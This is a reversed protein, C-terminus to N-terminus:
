GGLLTRLKGAERAAEIQKPTMTKLQARTLQEGGPQGGGAVDVTASAKAAPAAKLRPNGDLAKEVAATLDDDFTDAAPDLRAVTTAFGRSDLLLDVDAGAKRGVKEAAREIKLTRLEADKADREAAAKEAATAPDDQDAGDLGFAKRVAALTESAKAAEATAKDAAAKNAKARDEWTRSRAKWDE